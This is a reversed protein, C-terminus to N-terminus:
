LSASFLLVQLPTYAQQKDKGNKADTGRLKRRCEAESHPYANKTLKICYACAHQVFGRSTTHGKDYTCKGEQYPLCFLGSFATSTTPTAAAKKHLPARHVYMTRLRQMTDDDEWHVRDMEMEGMLIGHYNRVNDWPFDMADRMLERLHALMLTTTAQDSGGDIIQCLFGYAFEQVNLDQYSSGSHKPGKFVHYHPWDIDKVVIDEAVKSRGSKKGLVRTATTRPVKPQPSVDGDSDELLQLEAMRKRVKQGLGEDERVTAPTVLDSGSPAATVPASRPEETTSSEAEMEPHELTSLRGSFDSIDGRMKRLEALIAGQPDANALALKCSKGTPPTHATKCKSCHRGPM